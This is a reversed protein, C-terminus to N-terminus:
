LQHHEHSSPGSRDEKKEQRPYDMPTTEQLFSINLIFQYTREATGRGPQGAQDGRWTGALFRLTAFRDPESAGRQAGMQPGVLAILLMIAIRQVGM